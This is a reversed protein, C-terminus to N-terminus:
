ENPEDKDPDDASWVAFLTGGFGEIVTTIADIMNEEKCEDVGEIWGVIKLAKM